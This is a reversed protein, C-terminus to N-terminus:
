LGCAPLRIVAATGVGVMSFFRLGYEPPFYMKIRENINKVGIGGMRKSSLGEDTLIARCMEESMGVGDDEVVLVLEDLDLYAKVRLMCKQGAPKIGHYIANEVLPQLILKPVKIQECEAPLDIEYDVKSVYRMKQIALYQGVHEFEQSLPVVDEGGGLMLRFLKALADAMAASVQPKYNAMWVISELTNYLFHPNIQSQLAALEAKRKAKEIQINTSMLEQSHTLMTNFGQALAGIENHPPDEMRVDFDGKQVKKMLSRLSDLPTFVRVSLLLSVILAIIASSIAGLVIQMTRIQEASNVISSYPVVNIVYYNSASLLECMVFRDEYVFSNQGNLVMKVIPNAPDQTFHSATDNLADPHYIYNGDADVIFIYGDEELEVNSCIKALTDTNLNICIAGLPATDKSIYIPKTLSIVDITNGYVDMMTHPALFVSKGGSGIAEEYWGLQDDPVQSVIFLNNSTDVYSGNEGAICISTIESRIKSIDILMSRVSQSESYFMSQNTEIPMDNILMRIVTYQVNSLSGLQEMDDIYYELNRNVQNLIARTHREAQDALANKTTGAAIVALLFCTFFVSAFVLLTMQSRLQFNVPVKKKIAEKARSTIKM